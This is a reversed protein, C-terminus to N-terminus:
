LLGLRLALNAAAVLVIAWIALMWWLSIRRQFVRDEQIGVLKSIKYKLAVQRRSIELIGEINDSSRLDRKLESLQESAVHYTALLPGVEEDHKYKFWRPDM